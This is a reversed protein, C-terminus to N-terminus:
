QPNGRAVDMIEIHKLDVKLTTNFLGASTKFLTLLM